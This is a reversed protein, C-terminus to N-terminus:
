AGRIHKCAKDYAGTSIRCQEELIQLLAPDLPPVAGSTEVWELIKKRRASYIETDGNQELLFQEWPKDRKLEANCRKCSLVRNSIHNRGGLASPVLHDLDGKGTGIEAGCYACQHGFFETVRAREIKEPEPDILLRLGRRMLNKVQSQTLNM